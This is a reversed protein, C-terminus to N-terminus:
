EDSETSDEDRIDGINRVHVFLNYFPRYPFEETSDEEIWGNKRLLHYFNREIHGSHDFHEKMRWDLHDFLDSINNIANMVNQVEKELRKIKRLILSTKDTNLPQVAVSNQSSQDVIIAMDNEDAIAPFMETPDLPKWPLLVKEWSEYSVQFQSCLSFITSPHGLGYTSGHVILGLVSKVIISGIDIPLGMQICYNLIASEKTVKSVRMTPLLKSSIFFHWHKSVPNLLSASFNVYGTERVEWDESEDTLYQYIENMNNRTPVFNSYHCVPTNEISYLENIRSPTFSVWRGRVYVSGQNIGHLNAYFEKVVPIVVASTTYCFVEWRRRIIMEEIM